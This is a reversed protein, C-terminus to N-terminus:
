AAQAEVSRCYKYRILNIVKDKTSWHNIREGISHLNGHNNDISVEFASPNERKNSRKTAIGRTEQWASLSNHKSVRFQYHHQTHLLILIALLFSQWISVSRRESVSRTHKSPRAEVSSRRAEQM